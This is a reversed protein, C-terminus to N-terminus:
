ERPPRPSRSGARAQALAERGLKNVVEASGAVQQIAASVEQVALDVRDVAQAQDQVNQATQQIRSAMENMAASADQLLLAKRQVGEAIDHSKGAVQDSGAAVGAASDRVQSVIQRLNAIMRSYAHGLEDKESYPEVQRTLDGDAILRAIKSLGKLNRIMRRFAEAMRHIEGEAAFELGVGFDGESIRVAGEAMQSVPRMVRNVLYWDIAVWLLLSLGAALLVLVRLWAVSALMAEGGPSLRLSMSVKGLMVWGAAAMTVQALCFVGFIVGVKKMGM